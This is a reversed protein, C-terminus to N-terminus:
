FDLFRDNREYGENPVLAVSNRKLYKLKFINIALGAITASKELLDYGNTIQKIIKRMEKIAEILILTDSDCYERLKQALCFPTNRNEHYWKLFKKRDEPAMGDPIYYKIDPLENLKIFYNEKKNYIHPFYLKNDCKLNFTTKLAALKVPM